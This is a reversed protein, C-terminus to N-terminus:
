VTFDPARRSRPRAPQISRLSVMIKASVDVFGYGRSRGDDDMVVQASTIPAVEAFLAVVDDDSYRFPLNAVFLTAAGRKRPPRDAAEKARAKQKDIAEQAKEADYEKLEFGDFLTNVRATAQFWVNGCVECQVKCGAGKGLIDKEIAYVAKCSGCTIIHQVDEDTDGDAAYRLLSRRQHACVPRAVAPRRRPAYSAVNTALLAAIHMTTRM